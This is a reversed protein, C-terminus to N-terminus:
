IRHENAKRGRYNYKRQREANCQQHYTNKGNKVIQEPPSYSKCIWCKIWNANGCAALARMRQHLLLHYADSPCIVLNDNRNNARNCDAHHVLAGHPLKKGLATEAVAVHERVQSGDRLVKFYGNGEPTRM